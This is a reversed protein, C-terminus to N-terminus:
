INFNLVITIIAGIQQGKEFASVAKLFNSFIVPLSSLSAVGIRTVFASIGEAVSTTIIGALQNL